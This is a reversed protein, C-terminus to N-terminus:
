KHFECLFQNISLQKKIARLQKKYIKQRNIELRNLIYDYLKELKNNYQLLLKNRAIKKGIEEDFMDENSCVAKGISPNTMLNKIFYSLSIDFVNTKFAKSAQMLDTQEDDFKAVVVGNEKNIFYKIM